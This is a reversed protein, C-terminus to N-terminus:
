RSSPAGGTMGHRAPGGHTACCFSAGTADADGASGPLGPPPCAGAAARSAPSAVGDSPPAPTSRPTSSRQPVSHHTAPVTSSRPGIQYTILVGAGSSRSPLPVRPAIASSIAPRAALVDPDADLRVPVLGRDDRDVTSGNARRLARWWPGAPREAGRRVIPWGGRWWGAASTSASGRHPQRAGSAVHRSSNPSTERTM